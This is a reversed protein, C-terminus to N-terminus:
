CKGIRDSPYFNFEPLYISMEGIIASLGKVEGNNSRDDLEGLLTKSLFDVCVLARSRLENNM